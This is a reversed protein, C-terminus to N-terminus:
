KQGRIKDTIQEDDPECHQVIEGVAEILAKTDELYYGMWLKRLTADSSEEIAECLIAIDKMIRQDMIELKAEERTQSDEELPQRPDLPHGSYPSWTEEDGPGPMNRFNRM